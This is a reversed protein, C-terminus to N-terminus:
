NLSPSIDEISGAQFARLWRAREKWLGWILCVADGLSDAHQWSASAVPDGTRGDSGLFGVDCNSRMSTTAICLWSRYPWTERAFALREALDPDVTGPQPLRAASDLLPVVVHMTGGSDFEIADLGILGLIEILKARQAADSNDFM